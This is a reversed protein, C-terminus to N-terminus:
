RVVFFWRSTSKIPEDLNFSSVSINDFGTYTLAEAVKDFAYSREIIKQSFRKYTNKGTSIFGEINIEAMIKEADYYGNVIVTYDQKRKIDLSEWNALGSPTLMDFIFYGGKRLHMGATKFLKKVATIGSLHNVSDFFCVVLDFERNLRINTIDAHIFEAGNNKRRAQTLMQRSLDVGTFKLNTRRLKYELEGTGCALDLITKRGNGRFRVFNKLREACLHSFRNWGLM